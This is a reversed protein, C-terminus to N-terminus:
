LHKFIAEKGGFHKVDNAKEYGVLRPQKEWLEIIM